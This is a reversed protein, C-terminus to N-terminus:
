KKKELEMTALVVTRKTSGPELCTSLAVIHKNKPKKYFKNSDLHALLNESGEPNFIYSQNVDTIIFAFIDLKYVTGDKLTISGTQHKEYYKEDEFADLAGFMFDNAMHHGYLLNYSDSFDKANRTDLFISGSLSYDGYPDRNLYTTNTIGQMIPYDIPTDDVTLWAIYDKTYEKNERNVQQLFGFLQRGNSANYFVYVTDYVFYLGILMILIFIIRYVNDVVNNLINVTKIKM